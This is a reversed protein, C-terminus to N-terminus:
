PSFPRNATRRQAPRFPPACVQNQAPRNARLDNYGCPTVVGACFRLNRVDSTTESMALDLRASNNCGSQIGATAGHVRVSESSLLASSPPQNM